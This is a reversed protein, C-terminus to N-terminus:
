IKTFNSDLQSLQFHSTINSISERSFIDFLGLHKLNKCKKGIEIFSEDPIKLRGKLNSAMSVSFTFSELDQCGNAIDLIGQSLPCKLEFSPCFMFKKLTPCEKSVLTLAKSSNVNWLGLYNLKKCGRLVETFNSLFEGYVEQEYKEDDDENKNEHDDSCDDLPVIMIDLSELNSLKSVALLHEQEFPVNIVNLKVLNESEQIFKLFSERIQSCEKESDFNYECGDVEITELNKYNNFIQPYLNNIICDRMKLNKLNPFLEFFNKVRYLDHFDYLELRSINLKSIEILDNLDVIGDAYFNKVNPCKRIFYDKEISFTEFDKLYITHTSTGFLENPDSGETGESGGTFDCYQVIEKGLNQVGHEKENPTLALEIGFSANVM